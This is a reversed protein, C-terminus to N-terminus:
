TNAYFLYILNTIHIADVELLEGKDNKLVVLVDREEDELMVPVIMSDEELLSIIEMQFLSQIYSEKKDGFDFSNLREIDTVTKDIADLISLNKVYEDLELSDMETREQSPIRNIDYPETKLEWIQVLFGYQEAYLNLYSELREKRTETHMSMLNIYNQAEIPSEFHSVSLGRLYIDSNQIMDSMTSVRRMTGKQIKDNTKIVNEVYEGYKFEAKWLKMISPTLLIALDIFVIVTTLTLLFKWNALSTADTLLGLAIAGVFLTYLAKRLAPLSYHYKASDLLFFIFNGVAFVLLVGVFFKFAM